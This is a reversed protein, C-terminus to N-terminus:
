AFAEVQGFDGEDGDEVGVLFAEEAGLAGEDLGHASGGAVDFAAGDEVGVAHGVGHATGEILSVATSGNLTGVVFLVADRWM